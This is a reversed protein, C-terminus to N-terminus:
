GRQLLMERPTPDNEWLLCLDYFELDEEMICDERHGAEQLLRRCDLLM